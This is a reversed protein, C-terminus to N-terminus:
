DYTTLRQESIRRAVRRRVRGIHADLDQKQFVFIAFNAFSVVFLDWRSSRGVSRTGAEPEYLKTKTSHNKSSSLPLTAQDVNQTSGKLRESALGRLREAERYLSGVKSHSAKRHDKRDKREQRKM